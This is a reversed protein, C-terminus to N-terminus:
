KPKELSVKYNRVDHINLTKIEISKEIFKKTSTYAGDSFLIHDGKELYSLISLTVASMGGNTIISFDGNELSSITKALEFITPNGIRGYEPFPYIDDVTKIDKRCNKKFEKYNHYIITSGQYVPNMVMSMDQKKDVFNDKYICKTSIQFDNNNKVM